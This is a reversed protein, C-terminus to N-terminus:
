REQLEGKRVYRAAVEGSIKLLRSYVGAADEAWEENQKLLEGLALLEPLQGPHLNSGGLYEVKLKVARELLKRAM